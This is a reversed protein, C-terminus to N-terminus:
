RPNRGRRLLSLQFVVDPASRPLIDELVGIRLVSRESVRLDGGFTVVLAEGLGRM